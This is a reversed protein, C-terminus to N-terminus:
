SRPRSRADAVAAWLDTATVTGVFAKQVVGDADAVLTLPVSDIAYREHLGRNVSWEVEQVAVSDSELAALKAAVGACTECTRSSFLVALWPADPRTFDARDLHSPISGAGGTPPDPRRREIVWAVIVALVVLAVGVAM